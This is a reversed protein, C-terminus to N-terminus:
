RFRPAYVRRHPNNARRINRNALEADAVSNAMLEGSRDPDMKRIAKAAIYEAVAKFYAPDITIDDNMSNVAPQNFLEYVTYTDMVAFKIERKSDNGRVEYFSYYNGYSTLVREIKLCGETLPYWRTNDDCAITQTRRVKATDYLMALDHIADNYHHLFDRDSIPTQAYEIVKNLLDRLGM